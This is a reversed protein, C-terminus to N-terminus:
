WCMWKSQRNQLKKAFLFCNRKQRDISIADEERSSSVDTLDIPDIPSGFQDPWMQDLMIPKSENFSIYMLILSLITINMILRRM